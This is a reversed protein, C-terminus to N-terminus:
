QNISTKLPSTPTNFFKNSPATTHHIKPLLKMGNITNLLKVEKAHQIKWNNHLDSTDKINPKPENYRLDMVGGDQKSDVKNYEDWWNILQDRKIDKHDFGWKSNSGGLDGRSEGGYGSLNIMIEEAQQPGMKSDLLNYFVDKIHQERRKSDKIYKGWKLDEIQDGTAYGYLQVKNGNQYKYIISM